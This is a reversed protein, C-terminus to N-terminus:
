TNMYFLFHSANLPTFGALQIELEATAPNSDLNLQIFAQQSVFDLNYRVQNATTFAASGNWTIGKLGTLDFRDTTLDFDTVLARKGAGVGSDGAEFVFVDRGRGGTLTDAGAGGRLTDNGLSGDLLDDGDDGELRDSAEGGLLTDNGAGGRLTDRGFPL